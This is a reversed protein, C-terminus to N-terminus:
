EDIGSFIDNYDKCLEYSNCTGWRRFVKIVKSEELERLCIKIKLRPVGLLRGIANQPLDLVIGNELNGRLVKLVEKALESLKKEEGM